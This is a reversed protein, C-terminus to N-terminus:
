DFLEVRGKKCVKMNHNSVNDLNKLSYNLINSNSEINNSFYESTFLSFNNIDVHKNSFDIAKQCASKGLKFQQKTIISIVSIIHWREYYFFDYCIDEFTNELIEIKSLPELLPLAIDFRKVKICYKLFFIYADIIKNGKDPCSLCQHFHNIIIDSEMECYIACYLLRVFIIIDSVANIDKNKKNIFELAKKNYKYANQLDNIDAYTQALYFYNRLCPKAKSLIEIDNKLRSNTKEGFKKRDQILSFENDFNLVGDNLGIIFMEHVPYDDNYRCNTKNKYFRCDFHVRNSYWQQKVLGFRFNDNINIILSIFEGKSLNTKFEDGADMMLFFKVDVMEAFEIAENRSEPFGKFISKKLYLNQNNIKCSKKIVSVTNDNSGTDLVVVHDFYNNTSLITTGISDEEDKVMILIGVLNQNSNNKSLYIEVNDENCNDIRFPTSNTQLLLKDYKNLDLVDEKNNKSEIAKVCAKKGLDLNTKSILCYSSILKWRLYDYHEHNFNIAKNKDFITIRELYPDIINTIKQNVCYELVILYIELLPCDKEIAMTFYKVIVLKDMNKEIAVNLLNLIIRFYIINNEYEHDNIKLAYLNYKYYNDIDGLAGYTEALYYYNQRCKEANILLKVDRTYRNYTSEAFLDRNQYLYFHNMNLIKKNKTIFQEHVPYRLDYRIDSKNKIFRVGDHETVINNVLWKLKLVGFYNDDSLSTISKLFEGGSMDTKFEDGADMLLLYKVNITEAFQISENRSEAFNNFIGTTKIHLIQNNKQCCKTIIPLTDDTSGTDYIIITNIYSKLSDLTIKIAKEENKVMILAAITM